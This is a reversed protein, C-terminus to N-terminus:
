QPEAVKVLLKGINDGSFLMLFAGPANEIGDVVTERYKLKGENVWNGLTKVADPFEDIWETVIFFRHFPPPNLSNLVQDVPRIEESAAANYSSISGCIPVRAGPNLLGAVADLVPGGVNEFYVDIGDPCAGALDEALSGGKYDVCADFGLDNVVHDCKLQGGAIGVARCGHMRAIQGVVSGVAGAAASVVVTEGAKPNGVRLLGFYATQGPMGTVGIATTIPALGPDVKYLRLDDAKAIAYEQWGYLGIVIDGPQYAPINSQIVQSVVGATIVEGIEVPKAYSERDSMRGRMYPDLSLWLTKILMEGAGPEPLSVKEIRFDSERPLGLPRNALVIRTNLTQPMETEM